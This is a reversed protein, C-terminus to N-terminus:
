SSAFIKWFTKAKDAYMESEVWNSFKFKLHKLKREEVNRYEWKMSSKYKVILCLNTEIVFLYSPANYNELEM